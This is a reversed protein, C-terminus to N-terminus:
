ALHFTAEITPIRVVKSSVAGLGSSWFLTLIRYLAVLILVHSLSNQLSPDFDGCKGIKRFTCWFPLTREGIWGM